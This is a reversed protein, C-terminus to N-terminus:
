GYIWRVLLMGFVTGCGAGLAYFVAGWGSRFAVGKVNWSWLWSILFGVVFAGVFHRKAIQAINTAQLGVYIWGQAFLAAAARRTLAVQDL